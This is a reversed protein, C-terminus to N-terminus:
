NQGSAVNGSQLINVTMPFMPPSPSATVSSAELYKDFYFYSICIDRPILNSYCLDTVRSLLSQYKDQATHPSTTVTDAPAADGRTLWWEQLRRWWCSMQQCGGRGGCSDCISVLFQLCPPPPSCGPITLSCGLISNPDGSCNIQM